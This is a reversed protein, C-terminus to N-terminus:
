IVVGQNIEFPENNICVSKIKFPMTDKIAICIEKNSFFMDSEFVFTQGLPVKPDEPIINHVIFVFEKTINTKLTNFRTKTEKKNKAM